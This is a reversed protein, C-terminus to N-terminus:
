CPGEGQMADAARTSVRDASTSSFSTSSISAPSISISSVSVSPISASAASKSPAMGDGMRAAIRRLWLRHLLWVIIPLACLILATSGAGPQARGWWASLAYLAAVVCSSSAAHALVRWFPLRWVGALLASLEAFVPLPRAIVIWWMARHDASARAADWVESGVWRRLRAEPLMRGLCYGAVFALTLGIALSAGGWIPGLRWCLMVGVVSSPVPLGVDVVLLAIGLMALLWESDMGRWWTPAARDLAEGWLAFPLLIAVLLLVLFGAMRWWSAHPRRLPHTRPPTM